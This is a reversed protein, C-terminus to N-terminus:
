YPIVTVGALPAISGTWTHIQSERLESKSSSRVKYSLHNNSFVMPYFRTSQFAKFFTTSIETFWALPARSRTSSIPKWIAQLLSSLHSFIPSLELGHIQTNYGYYIRIEPKITFHDVWTGWLEVITKYSHM